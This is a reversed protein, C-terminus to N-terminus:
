TLGYAPTLKPAPRNQPAPTERPQGIGVQRLQLEFQAALLSVEFEELHDALQSSQEYVILSLRAQRYAAGQNIIMKAVQGLYLPLIDVIPILELLQTIVTDRLFVGLYSRNRRALTESRAHALHANGSAALSGRLRQQLIHVHRSIETNARAIHETTEQIRNIRKVMFGAILPISWALIWGVDFISLLDAIAAILLIGFVILFGAKRIGKRFRGYQETRARSSRVYATKARLFQQQLATLAARSPTRSTAMTGITVKRTPGM